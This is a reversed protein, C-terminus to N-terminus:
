ITEGSAAHFDGLVLGRQIEVHSRIDSPFQFAAYIDTEVTQFTEYMAVHVLLRHYQDLSDPGQILHTRTRLITEIQMNNALVKKKTERWVMAAASRAPDEAPFSPPGTQSFIERNIDLLALLPNYFESLSASFAEIKRQKLLANFSRSSQLYVVGVAVANTVMLAVVAGFLPWAGREYWEKGDKAALQLAESSQIILTHAPPSTAGAAWAASGALGLLWFGLAIVPPTIKRLARTQMM